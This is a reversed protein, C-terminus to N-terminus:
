KLGELEKEIEDLTSEVVPELPPRVQWRPLNFQRSMLGKLLPPFPPVKELIHRVESIQAQIGTVNEGKQFGDWLRRLDPSILNAPATICGCAHNQLAELFLSDTGNFVALEEGFREGLARAM